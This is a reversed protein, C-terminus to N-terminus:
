NVKNESENACAYSRSSARVSVVPRRLSLYHTHNLRGAELDALFPFYILVFLGIPFHDVLLVQFVIM